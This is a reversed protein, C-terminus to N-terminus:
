GSSLLQAFRQFGSLMLGGVVIVVISAAFSILVTSMRSAGANNEAALQLDRLEKEIAVLADRIAGMEDKLMDAVLDHRESLVEARTEVKRLRAEIEAESSM